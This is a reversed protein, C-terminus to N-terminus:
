DVQLQADKSRAKRLRRQSQRENRQFIPAPSSEFGRGRPYRHYASVISCKTVTHTRGARRPGAALVREVFLIVRRLSRTGSDHIQASSVVSLLSISRRTEQYFGGKLLLMGILVPDKVGVQFIRAAEASATHRQAAATLSAPCGALCLTDDSVPLGSATTLSTNM